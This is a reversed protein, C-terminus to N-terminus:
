LKSILFNIKRLKWKRYQKILSAKLVNDDLNQHWIWRGEKLSIM